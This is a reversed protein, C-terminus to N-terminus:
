LCPTEPIGRLVRRGHRLEVRRGAAGSAVTSGNPRPSGGLWRSSAWCRACACVPRAQPPGIVRGGSPGAMQSKGDIRSRAGFERIHPSGLTMLLRRRGNPSLDRTPRGFSFEQTTEAEGTVYRLRGNQLRLMGVLQDPCRAACFALSMCLARDTAGRSALTAKVIANFKAVGEEFGNGEAAPTAETRCQNMQDINEIGHRPVFIRKPHSYGM